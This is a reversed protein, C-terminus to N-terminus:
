GTECTDSRTDLSAGLSGDVTCFHENPGYGGTAYCQTNQMYDHFNRIM